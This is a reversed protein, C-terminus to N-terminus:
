RFWLVFATDGYYQISQSVDIMTNLYAIREDVGQKVEGLTLAGDGNSDAPLSNLLVQNWEDYGSGYCVGYTFAGWYHSKNGTLSQSKQESTCATLVHYGSAALDSDSRSASAFASIIASNFSSASVSDSKSIFAGSYCCDLLIIKTGPVKDLANRLEMPSLYTSNTGVLKGTNTGHGSFHFLSVDNANAGDYAATIASLIGAATLNEKKTVSYNSGTMTGLMTDIASADTDCGPLENSTGPYTNGILLARYVPAPRPYVFGATALATHGAADTAKVTLTVDEEYLLPFTYVPEATVDELITQGHQLTWSYSIPGSGTATVTFTTPSGVALPAETVPATVSLTCQHQANLGEPIPLCPVTLLVDECGPMVLMDLSTVPLGNVQDPLTVAPSLATGDVPCLPIAGDASIRYYFGDAAMLDALPVFREGLDAASSSEPAFVYPVDDLISSDIPAADGELYLYAADTGRLVEAGLYACGDPVRLAYLGTEAFAADGISLVGEPLTLIGTLAADGAFAENEIHTLDAPLEASALTLSFCCLLACLLLALRKNM